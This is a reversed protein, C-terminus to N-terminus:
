KNLDSKDGGKTLVMNKIIRARLRNKPLMRRVAEHIIMEPRRMRRHALTETKLGGPYGSFRYYKKDTEKNGTVVVADVDNVVVTIDPLRDPRYGPQDKGRLATAVQSALRGLVKGKASFEVTKM